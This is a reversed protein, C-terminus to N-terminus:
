LVRFVHAPSSAVTTPSSLSARNSDQKNVIKMSYKRPKVRDMKRLLLVAYKFVKPWSWKRSCEKRDRVLLRRIM